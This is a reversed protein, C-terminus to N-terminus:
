PPRHADCRWHGPGTVLPLLGILVVDQLRGGRERRIVGPIKAGGQTMFETMSVNQRAHGAGDGAHWGVAKQEHGEAAQKARWSRGIVRGAVRFGHLGHPAGVELGELWECPQGRARGNSHPTRCREPRRVARPWGRDEPGMSRPPNTSTLPMALVNMSGPWGMPNRTKSM